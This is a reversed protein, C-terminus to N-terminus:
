SIWSSCRRCCVSWSLRSRIVWSLASSTTSFPTRTASWGCIIVASTSLTNRAASAWLSNRGCPMPVLTDDARHLILTPVAIASLLHRVDMRSALEFLGEAGRPSTGTRLLRSWWARFPLDDVLSPAFIELSLAGGWDHLIGQRWREVFEPSLGIPHDPAAMLRAYSGYAILSSVRDPHTAAFLLSLPGGESIGFLAARQSGAADIVAVLHEM